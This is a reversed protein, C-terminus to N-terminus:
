QKKCQISCLVENEMACKEQLMKLRNHQNPGDHVGFRKQIDRVPKLQQTEDTFNFSAHHNYM